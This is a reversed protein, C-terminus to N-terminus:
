QMTLAQLYSEIDSSLTRRADLSIANEILRSGRLGLLYRLLLLGDYQAEIQGNGDIDLAPRVNLLYDGIAQTSLRLASPSTAANPSATTPLGLMYRMLLLGDTLASCSSSGDIDLTPEGVINPAFTAIATADGNVIFNCTAANTCPGLWGMFRQGSGPTATLVLSTGNAISSACTAGCNIAGINSTIVGSGTGSPAVTITAASAFGAAVTVWMLLISSFTRIILKVTCM